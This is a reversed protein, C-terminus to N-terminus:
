VTSNSDCGPPPRKAREFADWISKRDGNVPIVVIVFLERVISPFGQGNLDVVQLLGQGSHLSKLRQGPDRVVFYHYKGM